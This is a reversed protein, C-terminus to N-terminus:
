FYFLLFLFSPLTFYEYYFLQNNSSSLRAFDFFVPLSTIATVPLVVSVIRSAGSSFVFSPLNEAVVCRLRYNRAVVAM